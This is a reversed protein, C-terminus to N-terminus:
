SEANTKNSQPLPQDNTDCVKVPLVVSQNPQIIAGGNFDKIQQVLSRVDGKPQKKRAIEWITGDNGSATTCGAVPVEVKLSDKVSDIAAKGSEFVGYSLGLFALAAIARRLPYNPKRPESSPESDHRSM